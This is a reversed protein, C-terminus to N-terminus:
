SAARIPFDAPVGAIEGDILKATILLVIVLPFNLSATPGARGPRSM